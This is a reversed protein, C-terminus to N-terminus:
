GAIAIVDAPLPTAQAVPTFPPLLLQLAAAVVSPVAFLLVSAAAYAHHRDFARGMLVPGFAAGLAYATWTLGYITAFREKGFVKAVVYPVVDSESGAGFGILLAGLIAARGSNAYALVAIGAGAILMVMASVLPAFIRDLFFGTSLRGVISALGLASLALAAEKGSVGRSTLMAALHAIAANASFAALLVPVAILWFPRRGLVSRLRLKPEAKVPLAVPEPRSRVLAATLVLGLLGIAGLVIYGYRWGRSSIVSQAVLPMLIAGVANGSLVVAFAMGRRREFWSLVARSYALQATGNAVVGLVFYTAYFQALGGRLLALSMMAASFIVISPLIIHRAPRRDLLHGIWPSCFAVTIATIAFGRSIAEVKWGFAVHLPGIFLSFTYPVIAAFSVMVGICAALAVRWGEYRLSEETLDNRM